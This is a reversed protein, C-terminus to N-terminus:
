PHPRYQIRADDDCSRYRWEFALEGDASGRQSIEMEAHEDRAAREASCLPQAAQGEDLAEEVNQRHILCHGPAVALQGRGHHLSAPLPSGADHVEEDGGRGVSMTCAQVRAVSGVEAAKVG